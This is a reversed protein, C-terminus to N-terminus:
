DQIPRISFNTELFEIEFDVGLYTFYLKEEDVYGQHYITYYDIIYAIKDTTAEIDERYSFLYFSEDLYTDKEMVNEVKLQPGVSYRTYTPLALLLLNKGEQLMLPYHLYIKISRTYRWAYYTVGESVFRRYELTLQLGNELGVYATEEYVYSVMGNDTQVADVVLNMSTTRYSNRAADFTRSNMKTTSTIARNDERIVLRDENEAFLDRIIDSVMFDDNGSLIAEHTANGYRLANIANGKGFTYTPVEEYSMHRAYDPHLSLTIGDEHLTLSNGCGSLLLGIWVFLLVVGIKKIKFIKKM